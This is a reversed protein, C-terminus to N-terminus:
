SARVFLDVADSAPSGARRVYMGTSTRMLFRANVLGLLAEECIEEPLQWLRQAQWFTLALGPMELYEARIRETAEDLHTFQM